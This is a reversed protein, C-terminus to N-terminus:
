WNVMNNTNSSLLHPFMIRMKSVLSSVLYIVKLEKCLGSLIRFHPKIEKELPHYSQRKELAPLNDLYRGPVATLPESQGKEKKQWFPFSSMNWEADPSLGLCSSPGHTEPDRHTSDKSDNPLWVVMNPLM